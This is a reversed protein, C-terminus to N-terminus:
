EENLIGLIKRVYERIQENVLLRNDYGMKGEEYDTYAHRVYATVVPLIDEKEIIEGHILKEYIFGKTNINSDLARAIELIDGKPFNEIAIEKLENFDVLFNKMKDWIDRAEQINNAKIEIYNEAYPDTLKSRVVKEYYGGSSYPVNVYEEVVYYKKLAM